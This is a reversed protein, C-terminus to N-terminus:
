MCVTESEEILIFDVDLNKLDAVRHYISQLHPKRYIEFYPLLRFDADVGVWLPLRHIISAYLCLRYITKNTGNGNKTKVHRQCPWNKTIWNQWQTLENFSSSFRPINYTKVPEFANWRTEKWSTVNLKGFKIPSCWYKAWPANMWSPWNRTVYGTLISSHSIVPCHCGHATVTAKSRISELYEKLKTHHKVDLYSM